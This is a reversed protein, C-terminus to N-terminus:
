VASITVPYTPDQQNLRRLLYKPAIERRVEEFNTDELACRADFYIRFRRDNLARILDVFGIPIGTDREFRGNELHSILTEKFTLPLNYERYIVKLHRIALVHGTGLLQSIKSQAAYRDESEILRSM